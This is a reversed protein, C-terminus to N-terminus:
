ISNFQIQFITIEKIFQNGALSPDSATNIQWPANEFSDEHTMGGLTVMPTDQFGAPQAPYLGPQTRQDFSVYIVDGIAGVSPVAMLLVLLIALKKM